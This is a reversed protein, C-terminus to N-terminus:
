KSMRFHNVGSSKAYHLVTIKFPWGDRAQCYVVRKATPRNRTIESNFFNGVGIFVATLTIAILARDLVQLYYKVQKARESYLWIEAMV